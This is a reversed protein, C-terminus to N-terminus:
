VPIGQTVYAPVGDADPQSPSAKPEAFGKVERYEPAAMIKEKLFDPLDNFVAESFEGPELSFHVLPNHRDPVAENKKLASLAAVAAYENGSKSTEHTVTLNCAEGLLAALDFGNSVEEGRWAKLHQAITAKKDASATYEKSISMPRGDALREDPLEWSLRVKRQSRGALENFQSGTDVVSYLIATHTGAPVLERPASQLKM